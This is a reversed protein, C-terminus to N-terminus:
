PVPAQRGPGAVRASVAYGSVAAIIPKRVQTLETWHGLFNAKYASAFDKDRMEKIDAGAAFAKESGTLVIANVSGDEDAAKAAHNLETFLDSNLANLAKPRNLTILTVGADPQSVLINKYEQSAAPSSSFFRPSTSPLSRVSLPARASVSGRALGRATSPAFTRLTSALM